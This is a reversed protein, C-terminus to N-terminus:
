TYDHSPLISGVFPTLILGRKTLNYRVDFRFDQFTAHYSGDDLPNGGYLVPVPGSSDVLPHPTAGTYKAAIWPIGISVAIRDTLGYTVDVLMSDSHVHGRDVPTTPLYHYKVLADQFLISVTGEGQEPVFAEARAAAATAILSALTLVAVSTSRRPRRRSM